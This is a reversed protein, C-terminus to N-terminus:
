LVILKIIYLLTNKVDISLNKNSIQELSKRYVDNKEEVLAIKEKETFNSTKEGLIIELFEIRSVGRLLNNKNQYFDIQLKQALTKCAKYHFNDTSCIVGDLDFIIGKYKM